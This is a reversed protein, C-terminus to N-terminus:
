ATCLDGHAVPAQERERKRETGARQAPNGSLFNFSNGAAAVVATPPATEATTGSVVLLQTRALAGECKWRQRTSATSAREHDHRM